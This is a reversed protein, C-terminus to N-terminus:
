LVETKDDILISKDEDKPNSRNLSKALIPKFMQRLEVDLERWEKDFKDVWSKSYDEVKCVVFGDHKCEIVLKNNHQLKLKNIIEQPLRITGNKYVQIIKIKVGIKLAYCL